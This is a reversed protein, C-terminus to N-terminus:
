LLTQHLNGQNEALEPGFFSQIQSKLSCMRPNPDGFSELAIAKQPDEAKLCRKKLRPCFGLM